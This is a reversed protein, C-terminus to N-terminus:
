GLTVVETAVPSEREVRIWGVVVLIRKIQGTDSVLNVVRLHTFPERVLEERFARPDVESIMWERLLGEEFKTNCAAEQRTGIAVAIGVWPVFDPM